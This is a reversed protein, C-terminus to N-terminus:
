ASRRYPNCPSLWRSLFVSGDGRAYEEFGLATYLGIADRWDDNTEVWLRPLGRRWADDWLHAMLARAVGQRRCYRAVSVRVIRGSEPGARLMAATGVVEGGTEAILFLHGQAPYSAAIDDLDPNAHEDSFGFHEALGSQILSRAAAQDAPCFSRVTPGQPPAPLTASLPEPM